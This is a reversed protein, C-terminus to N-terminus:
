AMVMWELIAKDSMDTVITNYPDTIQNRKIYEKKTEESDVYFKVYMEILMTTSSVALQTAFV